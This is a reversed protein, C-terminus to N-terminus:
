VDDIFTICNDDLSIVALQYDGRWKNDHVWMSSAFEMQKLKKDTVYELGMGHYLNKRFKVEVFYLRNSKKAIIDIEAWRNQWNRDIIEFGLDLLYECALEEADYGAQKNTIM